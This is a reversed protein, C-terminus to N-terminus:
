SRVEVTVLDGDSLGLETRLHHASVFEVVRCGEADGHEVRRHRVMWAELGGVRAPALYITDERDGTVAGRWLQVAGAPVAIPSDLLVNLTGPILTEGTAVDLLNRTVEGHQMKQAMRGRGALVRGAVADWGEPVARLITRDVTEMGCM